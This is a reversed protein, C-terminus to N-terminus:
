WWPCCRTSVGHCDGFLQYGMSRNLFALTSPVEPSLGHVSPCGMCVPRDQLGSWLFLSPRPLGMCRRFAWALTRGSEESARSPVAGAQRSGSGYVAGKEMRGTEGITGTRLAALRAAQYCRIVNEPPAANKM